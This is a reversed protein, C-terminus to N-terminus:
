NIGTVEAFSVVSHRKLVGLNNIQRFLPNIKYLRTDYGESSQVSSMPLRKSRSRKM